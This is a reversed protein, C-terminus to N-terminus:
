ANWERIYFALMMLVMGAVCYMFIHGQGSLPHRSENKNRENDEENHGQGCSSLRWGNRALRRHMGKSIISELFCHQFDANESSLVQIMMSAVAPSKQCRVSGIYTERDKLLTSSPAIDLNRLHLFRPFCAALQFPVRSSFGWDIISWCDAGQSRGTFIGWKGQSM